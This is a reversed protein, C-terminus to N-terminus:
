TAGMSAAVAVGAAAAVVLARREQQALVWWARAPALSLLWLTPVAVATIAWAAGWGIAAEGGEFLRATGLFFVAIAVLQISLWPWWRHRTASEALERVIARLRPSVMLLFAATFALLARLLVPPNRLGGASEADFRITLVLLESVLLIVLVGARLPLAWSIPAETERAAVSNQAMGSCFLRSGRRSHPAM